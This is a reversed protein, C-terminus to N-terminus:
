PPSCLLGARSHGGCQVRPCSVCKLRFSYFQEKKIENKLVSACFFSNRLWIIVWAVQQLTTWNLSWTTEFLTFTLVDNWRHTLIGGCQLGDPHDSFIQYEYKRCKLNCAHKLNYMRCAKSFESFLSTLDLSLLTKARSLMHCTQAPLQRKPNNLPIQRLSAAGRESCSKACDDLLEQALVATNSMM